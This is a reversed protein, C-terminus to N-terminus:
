GRATSARGRRVRARGISRAACCSTGSGIGRASSIAASTRAAASWTACSSVSSRRSRSWCSSPPLWCGRWASRTVSIPRSGTRRASPRARRASGSSSGKRWRGVRWGTAPRARRTCWGRRAGWPACCRCCSTRVASWGGPRSSARLRTLCLSRRSARTCTSVSGVSVTLCTPAEQTTPGRRLQVKSAFMVGAARPYRGGKSESAAPGGYQRFPCERSSPMAPLQM